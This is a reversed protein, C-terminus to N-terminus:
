DYDHVYILQGAPLDVGIKKAAKVLAAWNKKAAAYAEPYRKRTDAELRNLPVAYRQDYGNNTYGSADFILYAVYDDDSEYATRPRKAEIKLDGDEDFLAKSQKKTLVAGFGIAGFTGQGMKTEGRAAEREERRPERV